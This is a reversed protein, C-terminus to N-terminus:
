IEYFSDKAPRDTSRFFAKRKFLNPKCLVKASYIGNVAVLTVRSFGGHGWISVVTYTIHLKTSKQVHMSMLCFHFLKKQWLHMIKFYWAGEQCSPFLPYPFSLFPFPFPVFCPLLSPLHMCLFLLIIVCLGSGIRESICRCKTKWLFEGPQRAEDKKKQLEKQFQSKDLSNM